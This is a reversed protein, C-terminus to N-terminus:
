ADKFCVNNPLNSYQKVSQAIRGLMRSADRYFGQLKKLGEQFMGSAKLIRSGGKFCGLLIISTNKLCGKQVTNWKLFHPVSPGVSRGSRSSSECNFIIIKCVM